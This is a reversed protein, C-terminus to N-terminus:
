VILSFASCLPLTEDEGQETLVTKLSPQLLVNGTTKSMSTTAAASAQAGTVSLVRMGQLQSHASGVASNQSFNENPPEGFLQPQSIGLNDM